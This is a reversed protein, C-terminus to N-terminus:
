SEKRWYKEIKSTRYGTVVLLTLENVILRVLYTKGDFPVKSQYAKLGGDEEVKQHPSKLVLLAIDKPIKRRALEEEAHKSFTFQKSM